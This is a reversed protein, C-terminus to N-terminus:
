DNTKTKKSKVNLSKILGTLIKSIEQTDKILETKTQTEIFNLRSALYLMSRVESCSGKSYYLFKAFDADSNRDFGEAVNNSISISARCIQDKFGFDKLEAFAMYINVALNQAKQWAIIDEFKQIAM